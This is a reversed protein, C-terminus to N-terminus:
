LEVRLFYLAFLSRVLFVFAFNREVAKMCFSQNENSKDPGSTYTGSTLKPAIAKFGEINSKSLCFKKCKAVILFFVRWTKNIKKPFLGTTVHQKLSFNYFM